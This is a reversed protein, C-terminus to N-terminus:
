KVCPLATLKEPLQSFDTLDLQSRDTFIWDITANSPVLAALEENPM